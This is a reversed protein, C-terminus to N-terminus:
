GDACTLAGFVATVIRLNPPQGGFRPVEARVLAAFGDLGLGALRAQDGGCRNTVVAIAALWRVSAFPEAAATLAAPWAVALYDRARQVAATATATLRQRCRGLHRLASWDAELREPRYCRLEGALRAILVADRESKSRTDDDQERAIHTVLPQVCM